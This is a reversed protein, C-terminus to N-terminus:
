QRTTAWMQISDGGGAVADQSLEVVIASVNTMAFGDRTNDFAITGTDLTQLFGQLDFFFPDDRLGAFVRLGLPGDLVTEVPGVVPDAALGTVQVGWEGAGNKGFRIWVDEDAQNDGDNDVHIGYVVDSSYTAAQGVEKLGAFTIVAVIKDGSKWAYFDTIDAAPSSQTGPADVHDAATGIGVGVLSLLLGLGLAGATRMTMNM